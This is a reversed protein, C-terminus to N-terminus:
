TGNLNLSFVIKGKLRNNSSGKAVLLGTESDVSLDVIGVDQTQVLFVREWQRVSERYVWGHINIRSTGAISVDKVCFLYDVDNLTFELWKPKHWKDSSPIARKIDEKSKAALVHTAIEVSVM